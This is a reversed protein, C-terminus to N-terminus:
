NRLCNHFSWLSWPFHGFFFFFFTWDVRKAWKRGSGKCPCHTGRPMTQRWDNHTMAFNCFMVWHNSRPWTWTENMSNECLCACWPTLLTCCFIHKSPSCLVLAGLTRVKDQLDWILGRLHFTAAVLQTNHLSEHGRSSLFKIHPWLHPKVVQLKTYCFQILTYYLYPFSRVYVDSPSM